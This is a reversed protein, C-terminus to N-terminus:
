MNYQSSPHLLRKPNLSPHPLSPLYITPTRSLYTSIYTEYRLSRTIDLYHILTEYQLRPIPTLLLSLFSAM